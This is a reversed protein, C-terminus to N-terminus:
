KKGTIRTTSKLRDKNDLAWQKNHKNYCEKCPQGYGSKIRKDTKFLKIDKSEGCKNCTMEMTREGQTLM